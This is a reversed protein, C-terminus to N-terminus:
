WTSIGRFTSSRNGILSSTGVGNDSVVPLRDEVQGGPVGRPPSRAGLQDLGGGRSILWERSRLGSSWSSRGGLSRGSCWTCRFRPSSPLSTFSEQLPRIELLEPRPLSWHVGGVSISSTTRGPIGFDPGLLRTVRRPRSTGVRSWRRGEEEKSVSLLRCMPGLASRRQSIDSTRSRISTTGRRRYTKRFGYSDPATSAGSRRGRPRGTVGIESSM